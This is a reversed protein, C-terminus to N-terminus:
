TLPLGCRSCFRDDVGVLAGCPVCKRSARAATLSEAKAKPIAAPRMEVEISPEAKDGKRQATRRDQQLSQVIEQIKPLVTELRPTRCADRLRACVSRLMQVALQPSRLVLGEIDAKSLVIVEVQTRARASAMRPAENWLAMEGFFDGPGLVSLNESISGLTLRSGGFLEEERYTKFIEVEGSVIIYMEAGMEEELFIVSEPQYTRGKKAFLAQIAGDNLLMM